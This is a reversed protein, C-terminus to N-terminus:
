SKKPADGKRHFLEKAGVFIVLAGFLRRLLEQPLFRSLLLGAAVGVLGFLVARPLIGKEILRNKSHLLVSLLSIPLFFLLNILQNELPSFGTFFSLFVLLVFGGGLGMSAAAGSLFGAASLMLGSM